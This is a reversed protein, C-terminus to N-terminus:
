REPVVILLHELIPKLPASREHLIPILRNLDDLLARLEPDEKKANREYALRLLEEALHLAEIRAEQKEEAADGKGKDLIKAVLKEREETSAKMFAAGREHRSATDGSGPLALLRSRLTAIINGESPVILILTTGSPPEEFTKLLANQAEHFIRGAAVTVLKKEGTATKSVIDSVFRADEVSFLSYRLTIIDPNNSGSLSLVREGYALAAAIGEEIDGAYFYAHHNM